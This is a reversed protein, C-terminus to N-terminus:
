KGYRKRKLKIASTKNKAQFLLVCMSKRCNDCDIYDQNNYIYECYKCIYFNYIVDDEDEDEDTM